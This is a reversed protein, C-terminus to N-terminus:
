VIIGLTIDLDSKVAQVHSNIQSFGISNKDSTLPNPSVSLVLMLCALSISSCAGSSWFLAM